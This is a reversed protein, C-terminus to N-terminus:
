ATCLREGRKTLKEIRVIRCDNPDTAIHVECDPDPLADRVRNAWEILLVSKEHLYDRIALQELESADELRYLDVHVVQLGGIDYTELLTFTPSTVIDEHGLSKLLGRVLTTKGAGLEGTLFIVCGGELNAGIRGGLDEM